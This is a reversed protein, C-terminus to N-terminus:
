RPKAPRRLPSRPIPAAAAVRRRIELRLEHKSGEVRMGEAAFGFSASQRRSGAGALATSTGDDAGSAVSRATGSAETTAGGSSQGVWRSISGEIMPMGTATAGEVLEEPNRSRPAPLPLLAEVPRQPVVDEPLPRPLVQALRRPMAGVPLPELQPVKVVAQPPPRPLQHALEEVPRRLQGEEVLRHVAGLPRPRLHHPVEVAVPQQLQVGAQRLVAQGAM